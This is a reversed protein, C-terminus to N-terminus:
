EAIGIRGSNAPCRSAISPTSATAPECYKYTVTLRGSPVSSVSAYWTTSGSFYARTPDKVKAALAKGDIVITETM